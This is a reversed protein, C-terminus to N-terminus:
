EQVNNLVGKRIELEDVEQKMKTVMDNGGLKTYAKYANCFNKYAYSPIRGTKCYKDHYEILKIQLLVMTGECNAERKRNEEEKEKERKKNSQKLLWVIYGLLIPLTITYTQMIIEQM